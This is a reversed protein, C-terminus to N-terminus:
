ILETTLYRRLDRESCMIHVIYVENEQYRYFIRCPNIVIELYQLDAIEIPKKGLQPFQELQKIRSFINKILNKASNPKDLAIYDAIEDLELLASDSWIVQAM